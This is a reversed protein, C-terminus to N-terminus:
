RDAASALSPAAAASEPRLPVASADVWQESGVSRRSAADSTLRPMKSLLWIRSKAASCRTPSQNGLHWM